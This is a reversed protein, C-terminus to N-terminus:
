TGVSPCVRGKYAGGTSVLERSSPKLLPGPRSVEEGEWEQGRRAVPWGQAEVLVSM